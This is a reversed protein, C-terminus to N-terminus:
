QEAVFRSNIIKRSCGMGHHRSLSEHITEISSRYVRQVQVTSCHLEADTELADVSTAEKMAAVSHFM